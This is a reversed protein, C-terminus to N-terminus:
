ISWFLVVRPKVKCCHQEFHKAPGVPPTRLYLYISQSLHFSITLTWTIIDCGYKIGEKQRKHYKNKNTKVIPAPPAQFDVSFWLVVAKCYRFILAQNVHEWWTHTLNEAHVRTGCLYHTSLTNPRHGESPGGKSSSLQSQSFDRWPGLFSSTWTRTYVNPNLAVVM